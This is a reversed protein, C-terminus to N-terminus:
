QQVLVTQALVYLADPNGALGQQLYRAADLDNDTVQTNRIRDILGDIMQQEQPTM